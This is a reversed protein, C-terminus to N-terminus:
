RAAAIFCCRVATDDGRQGGHQLSHFPPTLCLSAEQHARAAGEGEEGWSDVQLSPLRPNLLYAGRAAGGRQGRARRAGCSPGFEEGRCRRQLEQGGWAWANHGLTVEAIHRQLSPSSLVHLCPPSGACSFLSLSLSGALASFIWPM